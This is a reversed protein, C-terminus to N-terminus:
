AAEQEIIDCIDPEKKYRAEIWKELHMGFRLDSVTIDAGRPYFKFRSNPAPSWEGNVLNWSSPIETDQLIMIKM